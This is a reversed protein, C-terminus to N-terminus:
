DLVNGLAVGAPPLPSGRVTVVVEVAALSVVPEGGDSAPFVDEAPGIAVMSTKSSKHQMMAGIVECKRYDSKPTDKNHRITLNNRMKDSSVEERDSIGRPSVQQM